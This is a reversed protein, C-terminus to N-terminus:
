CPTSIECRCYRPSFFIVVNCIYLEYLLLSIKGLLKSYFHRPIEPYLTFTVEHLRYPVETM